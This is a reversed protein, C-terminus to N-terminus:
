NIGTQSETWGGFSLLTKLGPQNKKLNNLGDVNKLTIDAYEDSSIAEFTTVNVAAFAYFIHTCLGIPIEHPTFKYPELRYVAWNALYCGNVFPTTISMT